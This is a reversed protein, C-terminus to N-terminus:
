TAELRWRVVRPLPPPMEAKVGRSITRLHWWLADAHMGVQRELRWPAWTQQELRRLLRHQMLTTM